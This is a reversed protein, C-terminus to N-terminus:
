QETPVRFRDLAPSLAPPPLLDVRFDQRYAAIVAEAVDHVTLGPATADLTGVTDPSWYLGLAAYVDILVRRLPEPDRVLVIASFLWGTRTLRQATGVVKHGAGDNVSFEGPCFEGPVAGIEAPIGLGRLVRRYFGAFRKFRASIPEDFSGPGIHDVVVCGEHYAAARGGPGRRVPAFGHTRAATAAARIGAAACDKGSFALTPPPVYMRVWEAAPVDALLAPGSAVQTLADHPTPDFVLRLRSM